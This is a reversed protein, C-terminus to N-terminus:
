KNGEKAAKQRSRIITLKFLSCVTGSTRSHECSPLVNLINGWGQVAHEELDEDHLNRFHLPVLKIRLNGTGFLVTMTHYKVFWAIYIFTRVGHHPLFVDQVGFTSYKGTKLWWSSSGGPPQLILDLLLVLSKSMKGGSDLLTMKSDSHFVRCLKFFFGWIMGSMDQKCSHGLHIISFM